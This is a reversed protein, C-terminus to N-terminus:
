NYLFAPSEAREVGGRGEQSGGSGSEENYLRLEMDAPRAKDQRIHVNRNEREFSEVQTLLSKEKDFVIGTVESYFEHESPLHDAGLRSFFDLVNYIDRYLFILAKPHSVDMAQAVDIVYVTKDNYLLNFESLDGHVLRCDNFIQSM